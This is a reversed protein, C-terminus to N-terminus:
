QTHLLLLEKLKKKLQFQSLSLLKPLQAKQFENHGATLRSQKYSPKCLELKNRQDNGNCM